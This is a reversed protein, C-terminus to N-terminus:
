AMQQKLDLLVKDLKGEISFEYRKYKKARNLLTEAGKFNSEAM